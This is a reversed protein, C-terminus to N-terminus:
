KVSSWIRIALAHKHKKSVEVNELKNGKIDHVFGTKFWNILMEIDSEMIACSILGDMVLHVTSKDKITDKTLIVLLMEFIDHNFKEYVDLPIYQKITGQVIANRGGLLDQLVDPEVEDILQSQCITV